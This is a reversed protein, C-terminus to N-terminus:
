SWRQKPNWLNLISFFPISLVYFLDLFPFLWWLDFTNLKKMPKFLIFAQTLLRFGFISALILPDLKLAVLAFVSGFFLISSIFFLGLRWKDATKYLKGASLHRRKQSIYSIWTKKPESLVFSNKDVMLEVNSATAVENIFLDDDGSLLHMHSAFGKNRFFLEKKYALNRGVGMYPKGSLAFSFYSLATMFTEFRIFANLPSIYKKYPSFGLVIEKNESFGSQMLQIWNPQLPSCDADTFLLHENKAAKIGLTLAFKKGHKFRDHEPINVVKLHPYEKQFEELVELSDDWSCDNVVIVEFNSYSQNLLTPLHLKLNDRENRAAIIVSIPLVSRGSKEISKYTAFKRFIFLYYYLQILLSVVSLSLFINILVLTYKNHTRLSVFEAYSRWVINELNTTLKIRLM